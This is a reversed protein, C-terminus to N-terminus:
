HIHGANKGAARLDVHPKKRILRRRIVFHDFTALVVICIFSFLSVNPVFALYKLNLTM